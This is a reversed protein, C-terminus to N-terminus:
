LGSLFESLFTELAAFYVSPKGYFGEFRTLCIKILLIFIDLINSFSSLVDFPMEFIYKNCIRQFSNFHSAMQQRTEQKVPTPLRECSKGINHLTAV